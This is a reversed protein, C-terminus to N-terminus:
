GRRRGLAWWRRRAGAAPPPPPAEGKLIAAPVEETLWAALREDDVARAAASMGVGRVDPAHADSAILHALGDRVFAAAAARVRSGARGELSAATVQVFAGAEVLERLREPAARLEASREPHALIPTVGGVQLEFLRDRLDLPWGAYPVEVLLYRGGGGLTLRRLAEPSLAGLQDVAIEGGGVLELPIAREALAARVAALREEMAEPTTPYDGRVHPTASPMVAIAAVAAEAIAVSEDLSRAGDDLGPLIHSHLDIM